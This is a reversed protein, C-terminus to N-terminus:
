AVHGGHRLVLQAVQGFAVVREGALQTVDDGFDALHTHLHGILRGPGRTTDAFRGRKGPALPFQCYLNEIGGVAGLARKSFHRFVRLLNRHRRGAMHSAGVFRIRFQQGDIAVDLDGLPAELHEGARHLSQALIRAADGRHDFEDIVDRVLGVEQCQVCGDLRRAGTLGAATESNHGVLYALQGFFDLMGGAVDGEVNLDM